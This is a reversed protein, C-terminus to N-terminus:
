IHTHCPPGVGTSWDFMSQDVPYGRAWRDAVPYLEIYGTNPASLM